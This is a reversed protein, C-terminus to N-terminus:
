DPKRLVMTLYKAAKAHLPMENQEEQDEEEHISPFEEKCPDPPSPSDLLLPVERRSVPKDETDVQYAQKMAQVRHLVLKSRMRPFGCTAERGKGKKTEKLM